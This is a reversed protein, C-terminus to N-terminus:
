AGPSTSSAPRATLSPPNASLVPPTRIPAVGNVGGFGVITVRSRPNLPTQAITGAAQIERAVDAASLSGSEDVLMVIDLPPGASSSATVRQAQAPLPILLTFAAIAMAGGCCIRLARMLRTGRVAM